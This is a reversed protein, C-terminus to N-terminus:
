WRMNKYNDLAKKCWDSDYYPYSLDFKLAELKLENLYPNNQNSLAFELEDILQKKLHSKKVTNKCGNQVGRM